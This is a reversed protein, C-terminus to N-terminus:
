CLQYYVQMLDKVILIHVNLFDLIYHFSILAIGLIPFLVCFEVCRVRICFVQNVFPIPLVIEDENTPVLTLSKSAGWNMVM